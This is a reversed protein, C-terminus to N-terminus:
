TQIPAPQAKNEVPHMFKYGVGWVTKLWKPKSPDAEIKARLRNMTTNVTHSSNEHCYGWTQELLTERSFVRQPRFALFYLLEFEKRTVEIMKNGIHVSYQNPNIQLDGYILVKRDPQSDKQKIRRLHAKVRAQFELVSFPKTLYDDAGSELGCVIDMESSKSTLMLIPIKANIDRLKRCLVIGDKGPLMIDLIALDYPLHLNNYAVNGDNFLQVHHNMMSLNLSIIKAIDPNDEVLLINAKM